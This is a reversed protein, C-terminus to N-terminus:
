IIINNKELSCMEKKFLFEELAVSHISLLNRDAIFLFRVDFFSEEELFCVKRGSEIPSDFGDNKNFWIDFVELGLENICCLCNEESTEGLFKPVDHTSISAVGLTHRCSTCVEKITLPRGAFVGHM